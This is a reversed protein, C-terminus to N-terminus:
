DSAGNLTKIKIVQTYIWVAIVLLMVLFTGVVLVMGGAVGAIWISQHISQMWGLQHPIISGMGNLGFHYACVGMVFIFFWVVTAVFMTYLSGVLIRRRAEVSNLLASM